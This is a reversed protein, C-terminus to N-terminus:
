CVLMLLVAPICAVLKFMVFILYGREAYCVGGHMNSISIFNSSPPKVM